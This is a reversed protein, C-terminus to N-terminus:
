ADRRHGTVPVALALIEVQGERIRVDHRVLPTEPPGAIVNGERDFVGGHCPCIFMMAGARWSVPCGVHTCYISFATFAEDGTRRLYAANRNSPGAWPVTEPDTFEVRVTEDVEFDDVEGVPHWARETRAPTSFFSGIIPIGALTAAAGMLGVGVWGLFDRRSTVRDLGTNESSGCGGPCGSKENEPPPQGLRGGSIRYLMSPKGTM